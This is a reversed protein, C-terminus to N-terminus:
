EANRLDRVYKGSEQKGTIDIDKLTDTRVGGRLERINEVLIGIPENLRNYKVKGSVAVRKNFAAHAEEIKEVPIYCELKRKTLTDYINFRARGHVSLTELRGEFTGQDEYAPALVYDVSAAVRQTPSIPSHGPAAISIQAVGDNLVSVIQKANELIEESWRDLPLKNSSEAQEFVNLYERVIDDGGPTDCELTISLPSRLSAASIKWEAGSADMPLRREIDHLIALTKGVVTLVSHAPVFDDRARVKITLEGKPMALKGGYAHYVVVVILFAGDPRGFGEALFASPSKSLKVFKIRRSM